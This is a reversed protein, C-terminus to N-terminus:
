AAERYLVGDRKEVAWISDPLVAVQLLNFCEAVARHVGPFKHQFDHGTVMGGEKVKPWWARIDALVNKYDHAADIFVLDLSNDPVKRAADTSAECIFRLRDRGAAVNKWFEKAIANWDWEEYSEASNGQISGWPDVAVVQLEPLNELLYGTTRGEKCGVEAMAKANKCLGALVEWRRLPSAIKMESM